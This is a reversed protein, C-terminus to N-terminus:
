LRADGKGEQFGDSFWSLIVILLFGQCDITKSLVEKKFDLANKVKDEIAEEKRAALDERNLETAMNAAPRHDDDIDMAATTPIPSRSGKSSTGAAFKASSPAYSPEGFDLIDPQPTHLSPATTNKSSSPAEDTDFFSTTAPTNVAHPPVKPLPKSPKPPPPSREAESASAQASQRNVPSIAPASQQKTANNFQSQIQQVLPNSAELNKRKLLIKRKAAAAVDTRLIKAFVSGNYTPLPYSKDKVDEWVYGFNPDEARFRFHLATQDLLPFHQLFQGFTLSTGPAQFSHDNIM